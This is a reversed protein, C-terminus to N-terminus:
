PLKGAVLHSNFHDPCVGEGLAKLCGRQRCSAAAVLVAMQNFHGPEHLPHDKIQEQLFLVFLRGSYVRKPQQCGLLSTM